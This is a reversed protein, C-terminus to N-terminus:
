WELSNKAPTIEFKVHREIASALSLLKEEQLLDAYLQVGIPLGQSDCGCPLSIGPIGALNCSITFIDELYMELPNASRAGSAFATGPVTPTLIADVQKFAEQFDRAILTRVRQAKRYYADYYGSSLVYTGLMIRRKVEDGFGESRSNFYMEKLGGPLDSRHTYRVGDFRALNSSAEATAIVYYTAIAYQTHPLSIEEVKVGQQRLLEVSQMVAARVDPQIGDIFYERPLGVTMGAVDRGIAARYSPKAFTISTSDRVDSGAIADLLIAADETSNALPGIQDLSSAFAVLGYRSVIGYTPKLGVVGCFSAPQRISGGTDSGLAIPACGAAVAAASGGSSGGAVRTSDWPNKAKMRLATENSSGMAFEDMTTKGLMVAGAAKLQEIVTADYVSQHNELMKSSCTTPLGRVNINDKIAVPIGLLPSREGGAIRKDAEAAEELAAPNFCNYMELTDNMSTARQLYQNTLSVSTLQGADLAQRLATLSYETM